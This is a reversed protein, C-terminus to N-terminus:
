NIPSGFKANALARSVTTFMHGLYESASEFKLPDVSGDFHFQIEVSEVLDKSGHEDISAQIAADAIATFADLPNEPNIAESCCNELPWIEVTLGDGSQPFDASTVELYRQICYLENGGHVTLSLQLSPEAQFGGGGPYHFEGFIALSMRFSPWRAIARQIIQPRGTSAGIETTDALLMEAINNPFGGQEWLRDVGWMWRDGEHLDGLLVEHFGATAGTFEDAAAARFADATAPQM